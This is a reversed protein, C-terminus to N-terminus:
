PETGYSPLHRSMGRSREPRNYLLVIGYTLGILYLSQARVLGEFGGIGFWAFAIM